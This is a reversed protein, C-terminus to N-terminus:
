VQLEHLFAHLDEHLTTMLITQDLHFAFHNILEQYFKHLDFKM